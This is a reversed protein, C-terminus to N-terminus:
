NGKCYHALNNIVMEILNIVIFNVISKIVVIIKLTFNFEM